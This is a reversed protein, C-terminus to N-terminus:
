EDVLGMLYDISVNLRKSLAMVIKLNPIRGNKWASINGTSAGCEIILPTMKLGQKECEAKLRDYFV